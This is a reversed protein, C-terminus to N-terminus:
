HVAGLDELPWYVFVAKGYINQRPVWGWSRSDNSSSRHDGLVFYQDPPVTRLPMPMQDRFDQAVYPESIPKGNVVVTGDDIEVTDGPIGIVRKIYSKSPDGPYLFVVTDGRGVDSIGFRYVFKNIFIREDNQLSPMMSTGEVKVPQYLFLIVVIAILVSLFLDRFWSLTAGAASRGKEGPEADPEPDQNVTGDDTM